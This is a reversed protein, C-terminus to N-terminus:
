YREFEEDRGAGERQTLNIKIGGQAKAEKGPPPPVALAKRAPGKEVPPAAKAAKRAVVQRAVGSEQESTRFFGILRLLQEAEDLMRESNGVMSESSAALEESNASMEESSQANQQIVQDLQLIAKNVQEAGQTQENSAASIEQVLQATKQIDPVLAALLNGAREAVEISSASLTSIEGAANQSREALKRVAAAVVAFGKGHEGARAAEIAANLALLDTQRAIEEIIAIKESIVRMAAVTDGVARGSEQAKEAASVAIRETQTANDSNQRINSVMQEMAASSEEAAAAQETAGHSLQTAGGSLQQSMSAVQGSSERVDAAMVQVNQASEAVNNVVSGLRAVMTELSKGLMDRESLLEVKITLDGAAIREAKEALGKLNVVMRALSKGMVDADSLPKVEVSLDGAAITEAVRATAKLNDVVRQMSALMDGIEDKRDAACDVSVDGIALRRNIEVAAALPHTINRGILLAFLVATVSGGGLLVLLMIVAMRHVDTAAAHDKKANAENLDQLKDICDRMEEFKVGAQGLTLDIALIRGEQTDEVRGQVIQQSLGKWEKAAADFKALLAKEEGTEAVKRYKEMREFAQRLNEAYEEQLKKFNDSETNTFIMSREAVLLQQLDRDASLLYNTSALRTNFVDEVEHRLQSVGWYGGIAIVVMVLGMVAFALALKAAVRLDKLRVM